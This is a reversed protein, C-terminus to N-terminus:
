HYHKFLINAFAGEGTVHDESIGVWPAFYRSFFDYQTASRSKVTVIVGAVKGSNHAARLKQTSVDLQELEARRYPSFLICFCFHTIM